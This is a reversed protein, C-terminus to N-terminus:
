STRGPGTAVCSRHRRSTPCRRAPTEAILAPDDWFPIAGTFLGCITRSSLRLDPVQKLNYMMAIGGASIPIYAFPFPPPNDSREYQIDSVGFDVSKAAFLERGNASSSSQYNISLNYPPKSVDVQWQLIEIGAFSSGTGKLEPGAAARARPQTSSTATASEVAGTPSQVKSTTPTEPVVTTTGTTSTTGPSAEQAAAASGAALPLAALFAVGACRARYRVRSRHHCTPMM